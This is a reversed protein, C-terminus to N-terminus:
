EREGVRLNHEIGVRYLDEAITVSGKFLHGAHHKLAGFVAAAEGDRWPLSQPSQDRRHAQPREDRLGCVPQHEGSLANASCM